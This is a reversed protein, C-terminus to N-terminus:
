SRMWSMEHSFPCCLFVGYYVNCAVVTESATEEVFYSLITLVSKSFELYLKISVSFLPKTSSFLHASIMAQGSVGVM